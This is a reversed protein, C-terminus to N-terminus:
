RGQISDPIDIPAFVERGAKSFVAGGRTVRVLTAGQYAQGVPILTEGIRVGGRTGTGYISSVKWVEEEGGFLDPVGGAPDLRQQDAFTALRGALSEGRQIPAGQTVAATVVVPVDAQASATAPGGGGLVFRDVGLAALALAAVVMGAKQQTNLEMGKVPM